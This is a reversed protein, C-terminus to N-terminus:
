SAPDIALRSPNSSELLLAPKQFFIVLRLGSHRAGHARMSSPPWQPGADPGSPEVHAAMAGRKILHLSNLPQFKLKRCLQHTWNLWDGSTETSRHALGHAQPLVIPGTSGIEALGAVLDSRAHSLHHALMSEKTAPADGSCCVCAVGGRERQLRHESQLRAQRQRGGCGRFVNHHHSCVRAHSTHRLATGSISCNHVRELAFGFCTPQRRKQGWWAPDPGVLQARTSNRECSCTAPQTVVTNPAVCRFIPSPFQFEVSSRRM